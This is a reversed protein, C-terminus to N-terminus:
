AARASKDGYLRRDALAFLQESTACGDGLYAAGASTSVGDPVETHLRRVFARVAREDGQVLLAAFEDGGIRGVADSERATGRLAAAFARLLRDGEQHGNRDNTQKFNDLDFVVLALQSRYRRARAVEKEALTHFALQNLVGTLPDRRANEALEDTVREVYLEVCRDVSARAHREGGRDLVRGVALLEAAIECPAFGLSERERAHAFAHPAADDDDALAAIFSPLSGLQGLRGLRALSGGARSRLAEEVSEVALDWASAEM